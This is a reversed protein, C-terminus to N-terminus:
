HLSELIARLEDGHQQSRTARRIAYRRIDDDFGRGVLRRMCAIALMDDDTTKALVDHVAEDVRRSTDHTLANIFLYRDGWPVSSLFPRDASKVNRDRAFLEILLRRPDGRLCADKPFMRGQECAEQSGLDDFLQSLVGDAGAEHTSVFEDFSSLRREAATLKYLVDRVFKEAALVDFVPTSLITLAVDETADPYYFALRYYAGIRRYGSDPQLADQVLRERHSAPTLGRWESRVAAALAKSSSPSNIVMGGTPQYRVAEFNRNVIQGLAVFCLDGVTVVHEEPSRRRAAATRLGADAGRRHVGAPPRSVRRNYDYEDVFSMWMMRKVPALKTPRVDDIHALLAPVAAVGKEIVKRLIPSPESPAQALLMAGTEGSGPYPLFEWGSVSTSFGIGEAGVERFQGILAEIEDTASAPAPSIGAALAMWAFVAALGLHM